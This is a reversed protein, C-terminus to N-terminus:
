KAAALMFRAPIVYKGNCTDCCRGSYKVPIPNNGYGIFPEHCICCVKTENKM